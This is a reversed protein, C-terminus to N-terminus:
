ADYNIGPKRFLPNKGGSDKDLYWPTLPNKVPEYSRPGTRMPTLNSREIFSTNIKSALPNGRITQKRIGIVADNGENDTGYM